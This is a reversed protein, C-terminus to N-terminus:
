ACGHRSGARLAGERRFSLLAVPAFWSQTLAMAYAWLALNIIIMSSLLHFYQFPVPLALVDVAEQQQTRIKVMLNTMTLAAGKDDVAVAARRSVMLAWQLM